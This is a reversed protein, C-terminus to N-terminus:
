NANEKGTWYEAMKLTRANTGATKVLLINIPNATGTVVANSAALVGNIYVYQTTGKVKYVVNTWDTSGAITTETRVGTSPKWVWNGGNVNYNYFLVGNASTDGITASTGTGAFVVFYNDTADPLTSLRFVCKFYFLLSDSVLAPSTAAISGSGTLWTYGTTTTGTTFTQAHMYDRDITTPSATGSGAGGNYLVTGWYPYQPAMSSYASTITINRNWIWIKGNWTWIGELYDTCYFIYGTYPSAIAKMQAYTGTRTTDYGLNNQAYWKTAITNTDVLVKVSRSVSNSDLTIGVGASLRKVSDTAQIALDYGTGANKLSTGSSAAALSDVKHKVHARTAMELTDAEFKVNDTLQTVDVGYGQTATRIRIKNGSTDKVFEVAAGVNAGGNILHYTLFSPAGSIKSWALQNLWTPNNYTGSLLPYYSSYDAELASVSGTRGFVSSVAGGGGGAGAILIWKYGIWGFYSTDGGAKMRLIIAGIYATRLATPVTPTDAYAPAILWAGTKVTTIEYGQPGGIKQPLQGSLTHLIFLLLTSIILKKM